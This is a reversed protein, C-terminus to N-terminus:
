DTASIGDRSYTIISGQNRLYSNTDLSIKESHSVVTMGTYIQNKYRTVLVVALVAVIAVAVIVRIVVALRHKVIRFKFSGKKENNEEEPVVHFDRYDAM